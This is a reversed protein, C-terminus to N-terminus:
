KCFFDIFLQVWWGTGWSPHVWWPKTRFAPGAMDIHSLKANWQFYSLFAAGVSAGAKEDSINKIDALDSELSKTVEPTVPLRWLPEYTSTTDIITSICEEDDWLIGAIDGWLAYLCAGTLTALTIIHEPKYNKEVYSMVDALVLRWEADTHHIEVQVWNYATYVDLPKYARSGTTNEAIGVALFIKKPLIDLSDLYLATGFVTAAAAMDCKMDLMYKDPKIQMGGSDFTVGKWVLAYSEEKQYNKPKLIIISSEKDSWKGVAYILNCWISKLAEGSICEVEFNKWNRETFYNAFTEPNLDEPSLNVLDRASLIWEVRLQIDAIIDEWLFSSIDLFYLNRDTQKSKYKRFSYSCLSFLRLAELAENEVVYTTDEKYSSLFEVRDAELYEKRPFFLIIEKIHSHLPYLIKKYFSKKEDEFFSSVLEPSLSLSFNWLFIALKEQTNVEYLLTQSKAEQLTTIVTVTHTM